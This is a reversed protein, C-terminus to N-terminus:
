VEQYLKNLKEVYSILGYDKVRKLSNQVLNEALQSDGALTSVKKAMDEPKYLQCFLADIQDRPVEDMGPGNTTILPVGLAMVELQSMPLGEFHSPMCFCDLAAYFELMNDVYGLYRLEEQLGLEKSLQLMPEKDSGDGALLFRMKPNQDKLIKAMELFEKWGKRPILRGAFGVIFQDDSLQYKKRFNSLDSPLNKPNFKQLDVFNLLTKIKHDKIDANKRLFSSMAESVSIFMDVSRQSHKNFRNYMLDETARNTDSKVIQGHEHYILKINPFHRKKLLYGFVESRFLHCHLVQINQKEILEKLPKLPAFSYKATSPNVIVNPHDVGMTIGKTRLAYLHLDSNEQQCELVSKLITQAGGLGM